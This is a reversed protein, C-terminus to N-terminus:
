DVSKMDKSHWLFWIGAIILPISLMQGTSLGIPIIEELGGMKTKFFEIIFRAGWLLILFWGFIRGRYKGADNRWYIHALFLFILFYSISEYLQAPHRAQQDVLNFVFAWPVDTPKGIIEHNMLNGFRIFSGVLAIPISVRDWIWLVPKKSIRKSWLWMMIILAIAGGHSALGRFGTFHVKPELSIPLLMEILHNKYYDWEYFITHGLRAGIITGIVLYTLLSDLWTLPEGERKFIKKMIQYGLVFGLAFMLSYWRLEFVGFKAIIPDANWDIVWFM